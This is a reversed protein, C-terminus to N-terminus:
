FYFIFSFFYRVVSVDRPTSPHQPAVISNDSVVIVVTAESEEPAEEPAPSPLRANAGNRAARQAASRAIPDLIRSKIGSKNLKPKKSPGATSLPLDPIERFIFFYFTFLLVYTSISLAYEHWWALTEQVWEDDPDSEFMRVINQYFVPYEFAGDDITWGKGRM